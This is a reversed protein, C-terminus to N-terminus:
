SSCRAAHPVELGHGELLARDTLVERAPGDAAVRGDDIIVARDALDWALDMDHTAVLLTADLSTLLDLMQRRSRPDLNSTPEDLVLVDPRMSLVTALAVRKKQGFSLRHSSKSALDALGVAHLAEHVRHEVEHADLGAMLPGFAVDEFVSTMFLQDDPDQFVLGVRRRADCVTADTVPVGAVAVTGTSARLVGNAHLMLTSKGAGNPGLLAVREGARIALDVERLAQTGDPYAYSVGTFELIPHTEM